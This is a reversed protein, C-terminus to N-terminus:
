LQFQAVANKLQQAMEALVQASATVEEVQASMEETSASVEEIAASNEESVSAINEISHTVEQSGAAMEETAATNEEVVASVSDMAAVLDNASKNMEDMANAAQETQKAVDEVAKLISELAEGAQSGKVVGKEVELSGEEMASVAESVTQQIGKILDAIERTANASREALKRVEDAVVAFGKGHEGARAAEIAANLALLNTQSAIDEITELIMGIQESRKGMEEVKQASAGVKAKISQMGQVTEEVIATSVRATRATESSSNTSLRTDEAVKQIALTLQGTITSASTIASAQDQAGRAVGDIARGMQEVSGATKSVSESQMTTGRAVQQITTAIQSTAQEAQTAARNLEVSAQDLHEANQMVQTLARRLNGIMNFYANGLIDGEDKPQVQVTFDGEAMREATLAMSKQYDIMERFSDALIGVEDKGTHKVEQNIHGMSLERATKAMVAIPSSLRRAFLFGILTVLVALILIGFILVNRIMTVMALGESIDQEMILGWGRSEIRTYSGIVEDGHFNKYESAGDRGALIERSALSDVKLELETREKVLGEKIFKDTFRSPTIMVGQQNILYTDGTTGIWGNKLLDSIYTMQIAGALVGVVKDNEKVPVAFVVIVKGSNKSIVPESINAEGKIGKIFYDRTSLDMITKATNAVTIGDPGLLFIGEFNGWKKISTELAPQAREPDMSRIGETNALVDIDQQIGTLWNNITEKQMLAMRDFEEYVNAKLRPESLLYTIAGVIILPIVSMALFLLTLRGNLSVFWDSIRFSRSKQIVSKDAM